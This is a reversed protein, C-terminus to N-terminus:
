FAEPVEGGSRSALGRWSSLAISDDVFSVSGDCMVVNVGGPHRSRAAKWVGLFSCCDPAPANPARWHNYGSAWALGDAWVAGRLNSTPRSPDSCAGASLPTGMLRVMIEAERGEALEAALTRGQAGSGVLTEAFAVTNSLGDLIDAHATKSDVYFVGDASVYSGNNVGSGYSACYNSPGAWAYARRGHDSPCRFTNVNRSVPDVNDPHVFSPPFSPPCYLPVDLNLQSHITSQELYPTLMALASWRYMRPPVSPFTATVKDEIASPFFEHASEHNHLALGIQKLNNSCETRRAAERAMQIAPLLLAVLIGIIAIVVLLEVLTFGTNRKM